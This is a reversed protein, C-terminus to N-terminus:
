DIPVLGANTLIQMLEDETVDSWHGYADAVAFSMGSRINPCFIQDVNAAINRVSELHGTPVAVTISSAGAKRISEVAVRMTFGSALGDDVLIVQELALRGVEILLDSQPCWNVAPRYILSAM